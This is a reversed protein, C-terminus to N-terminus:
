FDIPDGTLTLEGADGPRPNIPDANESANFAARFTRGFQDQPDSSSKSDSSDFCGALVLAALALTAPLAIRRKM